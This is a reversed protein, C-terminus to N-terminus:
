GGAGARVTPPRGCRVGPVRPRGPNGARSRDKKWVHGVECDATKVGCSDHRLAQASLGAPKRLSHPPRLKVTARPSYTKCAPRTVGERDLPADTLASIGQTRRPETWDEPRSRNM